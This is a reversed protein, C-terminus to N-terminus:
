EIHRTENTRSMLNFVKPNLNKVVDTVCLKTYPDNVNNCTGSCRSTKISVPFFVPEDSDDNVIETKRCEQRNMSVCKLSNVSSLIFDFFMM